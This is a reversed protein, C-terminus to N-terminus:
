EHPSGGNRAVTELAARAFGPQLSQIYHVLDWAQDQSLGTAIPQEAIQVGPMPTGAIGQSIRRFLTRADGGAHLVARGFRRPRIARPPLAGADRFPQLTERDTPTIGIATSYEKTWDDYDLTEVQGNGGPGHCGACGTVQGHFLEQGRRVSEVWQPEDLEPPPPVPVVELDAEAWSSAVRHLVDQIVEAAEEGSSEGEAGSDTLVLSWSTEEPAAEDYDLEDVAEAILRREVEGRVSLYIVYDVLADLDAPELLTYSPMGTGPVGHRLREILDERTPKASRETSKWKFVGHRFDRPYPDQLLSAPGDGGGAPGHCTVCHRRYLGFNVGQQDSFIPGAARALRDPDVLGIAAPDQLQDVPWRPLDPTGFLRQMVRTTHDAAVETPISRSRAVALAYVGNSPFRELRSDCGTLTLLILSLVFLPKM